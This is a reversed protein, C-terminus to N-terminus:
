GDPKKEEIADPIILGASGNVPMVMEYHVTRFEDPFGKKIMRLLTLVDPSAWPQPMGQVMLLPQKTQPHHALGFVYSM